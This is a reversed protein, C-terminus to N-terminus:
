RVCFLPLSFQVDFIYSSVSTEDRSSTKKASAWMQAHPFSPAAKLLTAFAFCQTLLNLAKIFDNLCNSVACPAEEPADSSNPLRSCSKSSITVRTLSWNRALFFQSCSLCFFLTCQLFCTGANPFFRHHILSHM